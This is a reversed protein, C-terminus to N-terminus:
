PGVVRRSNIARHAATASDPPPRGGERRQREPPGRGNMRQQGDDGNGPDDDSTSHGRRNPECVHRRRNEADSGARHVRQKGDAGMPNWRSGPANRRLGARQQVNKQGAVEGPIESSLLDIDEHVEEYNPLVM